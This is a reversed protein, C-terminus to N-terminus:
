WASRSRRKRGSSTGWISASSSKRGRGGRRSRGSSSSSGLLAAFGGSSKSGRGRANRSRGSSSSSSSGLLAAFGGSSKSGRGRGGKKPRSSSSSSSSSSGMISTLDPKSANKKKSSNSMTTSSFPSDPVREEVYQKGWSRKRKKQLPSLKADGTKVEVLKTEKTGTLWNSRSVKFDSGRGTREVKYGAMEYRAKTRREGDAGKAANDRIVQRKSRRFLRGLM